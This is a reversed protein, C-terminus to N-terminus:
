VAGHSLRRAVERRIENEDWDPHDKALLHTLMERAWSFMGFAIRLREAGSKARLIEAMDDAMVEIRLDSDEMKMVALM